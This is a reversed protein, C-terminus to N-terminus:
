RRARGRSAERRRGLDLRRGAGVRLVKRGLHPQHLAALDRLADGLLQIEGRVRDETRPLSAHDRLLAAGVLVGRRRGEAAGRRPHLAADGRGGDAAGIEDLKGHHRGRGVKGRPDGIGNRLRVDLPAELRLEADDVLGGLEQRGLRLLELGLEVLLLLLEEGVAPLLVDDRDVGLRVDRQLLEFRQVAVVGRRDAVAHRLLRVVVLGPVRAGLRERVRGRATEHRLELVVDGLELAVVGLLEVQELGLPRRHLLELDLDVLLPLMEGGDDLLGRRLRALGRPGLVRGRLAALLAQALDQLALLGLRHVEIGVRDLVVVEPDLDLGLPGEEVADQLLLGLRLDHRPQLALAHGFMRMTSRASGGPFGLEGEYLRLM